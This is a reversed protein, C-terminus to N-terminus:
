LLTVDELGRLNSYVIDLLGKAMEGQHTKPVVQKMQKGLICHQCCTTPHFSCHAYRHCSQGQGNSNNICLQCTWTLQELDGAYSCSTCDICVRPHTHQM